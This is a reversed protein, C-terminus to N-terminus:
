QEIRLITFRKLEAALAKSRSCSVGGARLAREIERVTMPTCAQDLAELLERRMADPLERVIAAFRASRAARNIAGMDIAYTNSEAM